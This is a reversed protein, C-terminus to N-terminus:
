HLADVLHTAALAFFLAVLVYQTRLREGSENRMLEPRLLYISGAVVFAIALAADSWRPQPRGHILRMVTLGVVVAAVVYLTAQLARRLTHPALDM